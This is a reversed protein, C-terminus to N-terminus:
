RKIKGIAMGLLGSVINSTLKEANAIDTFMAVCAIVGLVFIVGAKDDIHKILELM